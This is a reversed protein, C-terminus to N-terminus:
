MFELPNVAKGEGGMLRDFAVIDSRSMLVNCWEEPPECGEPLPCGLANGGPNIGRLGAERCADMINEARVIVAGRFGAPTGFSVYWWPNTM